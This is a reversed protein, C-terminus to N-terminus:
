TSSQFISRTCHVFTKCAPHAWALSDPHIPSFLQLMRTRVQLLNLYLWSCLPWDEWFVQVQNTKWINHYPNRKQDCTNPQGHSYWSLQLMWLEAPLQLCLEKCFCRYSSFISSTAQEWAQVPSPQTRAKLQQLLDLLTFITEWCQFQFFGGGDRSLIQRQTPSLFKPVESNQIRKIERSYLLVFDELTNQLLVKFTIRVMQQHKQKPM